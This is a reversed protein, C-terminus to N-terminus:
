ISINDFKDSERTENSSLYGDDDIEDSSRKSCMDDDLYVTANINSSLCIIDM